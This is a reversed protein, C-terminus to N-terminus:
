SRKRSELDDADTKVVFNGRPGGEKFAAKALNLYGAGLLAAEAGAVRQGGPSEVVGSPGSGKKLEFDFTHWGNQLFAPSSAPLYGEARVMCRVREGGRREDLTMSYKGESGPKEDQFEWNVQDGEMMQWAYGHVAALAWLAIAAATASAFQLWPKSFKRIM